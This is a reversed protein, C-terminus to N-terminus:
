VRERCSARGIEDMMSAVQEPWRTCIASATHGPKAQLPTEGARLCNLLASTFERSTDTSAISPDWTRWKGECPLIIRIDAVSSLPWSSIRVAKEAFAAVPRHLLDIFELTERPHVVQLVMAGDEDTEDVYAVMMRGDHLVELHCFDRESDYWRRQVPCYRVPCERGSPAVGDVLIFGGRPRSCILVDPYRRGIYQACYELWQEKKEDSIQMEYKEGCHNRISVIYSIGTVFSTVPRSIVQLESDM